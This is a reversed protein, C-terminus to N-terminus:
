DRLLVFSLLSTNGSMVETCLVCLYRVLLPLLLYIENQGLSRGDSVTM